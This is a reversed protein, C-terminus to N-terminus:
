HPLPLPTPKAFRAQPNPLRWVYFLTIGTVVGSLAALGEFVLAPTMEVFALLTWAHASLGGILAWVAAHVAVSAHRIRHAMAYCVCSAIAIPITIWWSLIFTLWVMMPVVNLSQERVALLPALILGPALVGVLILHAIIALTSRTRVKSASRRSTPM